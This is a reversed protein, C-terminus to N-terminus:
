RRGPNISNLRTRLLFIVSCCSGTAFSVCSRARFCSQYVKLLSIVRLRSLISVFVFCTQPIYQNQMSNSLSHDHPEHHRWLHPASTRRESCEADDAIPQCDIRRLTAKREGSLACPVVEHGDVIANGISRIIQRCPAVIQVSMRLEAKLLGPRAVHHGRLKGFPADLHRAADGAGADDARQAAAGTAARDTACGYGGPHRDRPMARVPMTPVSRLPVLRRAIPM